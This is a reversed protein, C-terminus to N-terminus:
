KTFISNKNQIKYWDKLVEEEKITEQKYLFMEYDSMGYKRAFKKDSESLILKM